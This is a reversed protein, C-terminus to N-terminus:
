MPSIHYCFIMYDVAKDLICIIEFWFFINQRYHATPAHCNLTLLQFLQFLQFMWPEEVRHMEAM